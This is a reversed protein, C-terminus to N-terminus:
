RLVEKEAEEITMERAKKRLERAKALWLEKEAVFMVGIGHIM